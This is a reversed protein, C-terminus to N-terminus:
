QQIRGYVIVCMIKYIKHDGCAIGTLNFKPNLLTERHERTPIGDNILLFPIIEDASSLGYSINEGIYLYDSKIYRKVRDLPSSNDSGLHGIAGTTIQDKLHDRAAKTLDENPYLQGLPNTKMLVNYCEEVARKGEKTNYITNKSIYKLGIFKSLMPKIRIQAYLKPDTRAKNMEFIIEKELKNLYDVQSAIDLLAYDNKNVSTNESAFCAIQAEM